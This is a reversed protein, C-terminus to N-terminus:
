WIWDRYESWLNIHKSQWIPFVIKSIINLSILIKWAITIDLDDM